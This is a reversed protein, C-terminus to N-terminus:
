KPSAKKYAKIAHMISTHDRNLVRGILAYSMGRESRLRWCVERRSLVVNANRKHQFIERPDINYKSAAEKLIEHRFDSRSYIVRNPKIAEDPEPKTDATAPTTEQCKPRPNAIRFRVNKYHECLQEHYMM